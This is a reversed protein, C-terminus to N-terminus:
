HRTSELMRGPKDLSLLGHWQSGHKKLCESFTLAQTARTTSTSQGQRDTADHGAPLVGILNRYAGGGTEPAISTSAALGNLPQM